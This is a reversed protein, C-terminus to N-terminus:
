NSGKAGRSLVRATAADMERLSLETGRQVFSYGVPPKENPQSLRAVHAEVDRRLQCLACACEGRESVHPAGDELGVASRYEELVPVTQMISLVVKAAHARQDTTTGPALMTETTERIIEAVRNLVGTCVADVTDPDSQNWYGPVPLVTYARPAGSPNDPRLAKALEPPLVVDKGIGSVVIFPYYVDGGDIGRRHVGVAHRDKVDVVVDILDGGDTEVGYWFYRDTLLIPIASKTAVTLGYTLVYVPSSPPQAYTATMMSCILDPDEMPTHAFPSTNTDRFRALAEKTSKSIEVIYDATFLTAAERGVHTELLNRVATIPVINDPSFAEPGEDCLQKAPAPSEIVRRVLSFVGDLHKSVHAVLEDYTPMSM